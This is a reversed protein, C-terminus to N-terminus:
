LMPKLILSILQLSFFMLGLLLFKPYRLNDFLPWVSKKRFDYWTYIAGALGGLFVARPFLYSLDGYLYPFIIFGLFFIVSNTYYKKALYVVMSSNPGLVTIAQIGILFIQKQDSIFLEGCVGTM